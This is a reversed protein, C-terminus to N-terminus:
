IGVIFQRFLLSESKNIDIPGNEDVVMIIIMVDYSRRVRTFGPSALRVRTLCSGCCKSKIQIEYVTIEVFCFHIVLTYEVSFVNYICAEQFLHMHNYYFILIM